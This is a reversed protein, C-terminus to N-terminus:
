LHKAETTRMIIKPVRTLGCLILYVEESRFFIICEVPYLYICIASNKKRLSSKKKTRDDYDNWLMRSMSKSVLLRHNPDFRRRTYPFQFLTIHPLKRAVVSACLIEACKKRTHACVKTHTGIWQSRYDSFSVSHTTIQVESSRENNSKSWWFKDYTRLRVQLNSLVYASRLEFAM